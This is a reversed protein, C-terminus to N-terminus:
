KYNLDYAYAKLYAEEQNARVSGIATEDEVLYKDVDIYNRSIFAQEQYPTPTGKVSVGEANLPTWNVGPLSGEWRAGNVVMSKKTVLPVDQIVAGNDILSMSIAQVLPQNAMQTFDALTMTGAGIAM